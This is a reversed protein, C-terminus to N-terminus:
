KSEEMPRNWCKECDRLTYECHTANTYGLQYPCCMPTKDTDKLANPYKEFFDQMMTKEPHEKLWDEVIKIADKPYFAELVTCSFNFGNKGYSMPCGECSEMDNCGRGNSMRRKTRLYLEADM